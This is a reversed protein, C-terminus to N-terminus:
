PELYQRLTLDGAAIHHLEGDDDLVLLQGKDDTGVATGAVETEEGLRSVAVRKNMFILREQWATHPSHNREALDYYQEFRSLIAAFLDLRSMPSQKAVQLSTPPFNAQPLREEPINVNVGIGVVAFAVKGDGAMHGEQLIGCYKKWVDGQKTVCDNPWKLCTTVPTLQEVAESVALGSIM